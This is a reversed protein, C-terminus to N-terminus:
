QEVTIERAVSVVKDPFSGRNECKEYKQSRSFTNLKKCGTVKRRSNLLPEVPQVPWVIKLGAKRKVKMRKKRILNQGSSGLEMKDTVDNEIQSSAVTKGSSEKVVGTNNEQNDQTDIM